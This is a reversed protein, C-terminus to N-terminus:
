FQYKFGVNMNYNQSDHRGRHYNIEGTMMFNEKIKAQLGVKAEAMLGAKDSYLRTQDYKVSSQTNDFWLNIGAYPKIDGNYPYMYAGVRYITHGSFSTSIDTGSHDTVDGGNYTLYSIQAQPEVVLNDKVLIPYGGQLTYSFVNSTYSDKDNGQTQASNRYHGYSFYADIFPSLANDADLYWSGYVGFMNGNVKGNSSSGTDINHSSSSVHTYGTMVGVIFASGNSNFTGDIGILSSFDNYDYKIQGGAAKGKTKGGGNIMWVSNLHDDDTKSLRDMARMGGSGAALAGSSRSGFSPLLSKTVSDANAIYVGLDPRYLSEKYSTLYWDQDTADRQLVYEYAGKVVTNDLKFADVDSSGNDILKVGKESTSAGTGGVDNIHILTSGGAHGSITLQDLKSTEDDGLETNMYIIANDYGTYNGNIVLNNGVLNNSSGINIRNYNDLDNNITFQAIEPVERTLASLNNAVNINGFNIVKGNVSGAGSLATGSNIIIDGADVGGLAVNDNVFLNGQNINTNGTYTQDTGIILANTGNKIMNGSGAIVNTLTQDATNLDFLVNGNNNIAATGLQNIDTASLLSDQAINFIGSFDTNVGSLGINANVNVNGAGSLANIFNSNDGNLNLEGNLKIASNGLTGNGTLTIAADSTIDTNATLGNNEASVILEGGALTLQGAGTLGNVTSSSGGNAITLSGNALDVVGSNTLSGITQTKGNLGTKADKNIMLESTNGLANDTGLLLIGSRVDTKGTYENDTNAVTIVTNATNGAIALDGNGVIQSTIMGSGTNNQAETSEVILANSGSGLLDIKVLGYNLYIGDINQGTTLKYNFYGIASTESSGTNILNEEVDKELLPQGDTNQLTLNSAYGIVKDTQALQLTVEGQDLQTVTNGSISPHIDAPLNLSISGSGSVDVTNVNVVGESNFVGSNEVINNFILEGGNLTLQDLSQKCNEVTVKGGTSLILDANAISSTNNGGLTFATNGLEVKGTFSDGVTNSFSFQNGDTDVNINGAGTLANNFAYDSDSAIVLSDDSGKVNISASSNLQNDQSVTLSSGETIAIDGTFDAAQSNDKSLTLHSGALTMNGTGTLANGLETSSGSNFNNFVLTSGDAISVASSGLNQTQGATLQSNDTIVYQGAFSSNNGTLSMVSGNNVTVTSGAVGSLAQNVAQSVGSLILAASSDALNVTASDAGLNQGRSVTLSGNEGIVQSGTFSQNNGTLTVSAQTNVSGAGSLINSLASNNGNLNLRGAIDIASSGLTGLGNLTVAATKDITTTASLGSNAASVVLEGGKVNLQGAGSLGNAVTSTGGNTLSLAGGALNVSGANALSGVTQTKGNLDVSTGTNLTLQVTQGLANDAGVIVKGATVTTNGTYDNATNSLSIGTTDSAVSLNGSGTLKATLDRNTAGTSTLALTQGNQIDLQTLAYNVGLGGQNTLQYDYQAKAVLNSNQNIDHEVGNALANGSQDQLTLENVDVDGSEQANVLQYVEGSNQDLLNSATDIDTSPINDPNIQIISKDNVTLKDTNIVGDGNFSVTGGNLTLNGITQEGAGVTTKNGEAVNLTAQTLAATNDGSLTFTSHSLSVNGTFDSGVNNSFSFQNGDTDVNINGAGTLANNFAYDSDSAIVLNDDSGKVHISASSNLQNDQSVTLSSGETIAIDGTFDAAQSNDKSLTLHSGALTMNGTGTLANGLETSSGSNFNNFVLTSGDAISVASSGLNQTQGATLQSNDTIVYQGAFSSNNGTLSMVSGNNVTVTSGAVGSLAQNVAQSVGSLILAASSDALNVTASDAGLNQGRSVTLSGNEGIVQSGTFSQNNGTLTVSAQTNVSGAGSLINSLASNNGNLNLRGAIDIASSGLTGLGNLTVAATKDITTTASLGSNAASVVLEGGKVNLQGAGSLGNAVTSTGGNTLSLAGGALNVSGANALSGVTQTKGNLDVSTGTNLTLQATQGLANDAGVIVKGATVTTNGTYDNATNSLSIGTTDSAVSLNGNGTLKATLDRNTAGTSTLALTQGNQIDLQTLVYNVGLGGQNTLQYDYRAKAVLQENQRLDHTADNTLANGSQDQLTLDNVDVTSSEQANVLQYVEGSNQDLLNSATDIDTSPINDPNIQIISKDNVTLKDTNIVGDGNFSVTGGNLTLNSITQEGAGVTTKNGEVVNLTAQTLAATNDGSLTFTSHSLSVNGTFDSGVNHSFSFQNGDTDVNINGAGTLANNFAYNSDSAIVLNDDSGKVNISASSNLQNDQSVTLSSGETIAIDGTFDAAQSNDKSLTLHSGALTMNGTGTLANGLETSSGSNFNNFVLTSGDAISVASSGLNQTQGATLQSNDTIVYQGAFSSNNGTLSMVSGNNVTVTSGAVGSLAQNVAQSVGSLILAASSDALNVTASDAGLNQGRSVTLSGNKGIVQSGTFSQNNGTLTVAAQTNVSGAGSLINSLASNNGNLNLRGAIDIASSGLTGAGNLTVAAMKDITTTASLGSNAASVVLEGGKVNLQGAGSLGNAVTSTGGNTLSLAGGALNVSGANTLSGVTQTKGNLNATANQNIVLASTNGLASNDGLILTGSRVFTKGTYSNEGNNISITTNATQGEIALDGDGEVKSTLNGSATNNQQETSELILANDGSGELAIRVLGYDLYLGDSDHGTTLDYNFYGKASEVNTNKNILNQEKDNPLPDNNSDDLSLDSADGIVTNAKVLSLIINGEDLQLVTYVDLNPTINNPLDVNVSGVSSVDLTDTTITGESTFKGNDETIQNFFLGGGNITLGDLQHEGKGVTVNAGNSVILKSNTLTTANNDILVFNANTFDVNGAFASGVNTGFNFTSGSADININGNGTLAQNFNYDGTVNINLLDNQSSVNISSDSSLQTTQDMNLTSGGLINYDGSFNINNGKFTTSSSNAINVKGSSGTLDNVFDTKFGDLVLTSSSDALDVTATSAGLNNANSVTLQGNSGIAQTGTFGSNNGSLIINTNTNVTGAGSLVNSVQSNNGNLNLRGAIDIAGSGLTGSSNLTVAATKDITTTASLGSNASTVVLEGSQVQLKGAGILGNTSISSGGNTLVLTGGALNMSGANALSGITQTKGNLDVSTGTNLTLQATQGLANDAGVIVKGATVTTNGTYDNATNSLSIGTTDSAVSLNGKGTLKATLDRNTAGTSTLALTQGNQIDLQTLAYNVGLGGQNTLQYDYGAKAVLQENQRLDHTADNTLANGSQDQLTLDNVDVTSSEQANVLQYVEGSNQDLLNSATDIDTSPINDPNIQIISKDNVTLKDTNIVGDGNFSVTGGNLTLNGITQEGAGVTTKNGEAVNLTAQTLAATNDGSLTFTSHSLSVNGTFDSGVNNSFSFQNGDTDVNINGAGTLANNFAYNSDSAIVLNDDAGKVNISASSNLQNDQSVTLSSGETIAIDGTFDAAQSNDKSLTLHSGALTMNGTGTLANGLETSSGSNFNNFVLTSGDAISVASSGLNQTQGATLQSNDTIVYQGAFSSNNGTLSMVSGNNVTVTSGAVGSLAQNVAQSVGSLILAASSDALNVTASDAGLNQGRSVTLSGNEGIVQSGTFSQNNGTLTVAAQTNVSGAGSLINSLASNNGNLNLRGAIDIASSGLTGLGNLTVAATKDITTTASLGSNAASVVLEGGKVNLQGAGSLGNAVTSTGGNTLSLAGGALNVSGANALSGVTQTKGNLDVSTGTNLTLQATQGLANDAGVIVKGATVTTNGTYDNATNSLSIGTADSAVSLNGKGTLKATLDRNTAGTSTLALTQGNQIDLQTLQSSVSLGKDSILAFDYDAVAVVNNNQTINHQTNNNLENGQADQLALKDLDTSSLTNDSSVLQQKQITNQDLLNDIYVNDADIKVISNDTVNLENVNVVGSDAAYSLTGGNLTLNGLNQQGLGITATSESSLQLTANTLASTNGDSVALQTNTLNVTGLFNNGTNSLFNFSNGSTDINVQGNGTLANDLTTQSLNLTGSLAVSGSGFQSTASTNLTGGQDILWEGSFNNNANALTVNSGDKLEVRGTGSLVIGVDDNYQDSFLLSSTDNINILGSSLNDKNLLSLTSQDLNINGFNKFFTTEDVELYSNDFNLVNNGTGADLTGIHNSSNVDFNSLNFTDDGSGTIVNKVSTDNAISVTNNGDGLNITGTTQSGSALILTDNGSGTTLSGNLSKNNTIINDVNGNNFLVNGDIVGDNVFQRAQDGNIEIATSGIANINIDNTVHIVDDTNGGSIKIATGTGTTAEGSSDTVNLTLYSDQIASLDNNLLLGTGSGTVTIINNTNNDSNAFIINNLGSETFATSDIVNIHTDKLTVKADSTKIVNGTAGEAFNITTGTIFHANPSGSASVDIGNGSGILNVTGNNINLNVNAKSSDSNTVIGDGSNVNLIGDTLDVDMENGSTSSFQMGAVSSTISGNNNVRVEGNGNHEIKIGTAANIDTASRVYIGSNNGANKTVVIGTGTVNFNSGGALNFVVDESGSASNDIGGAVGGNNTLGDGTLQAGDVGAIQLTVGSGFTETQKDYSGIKLGVNSGTADGFVNQSSWLLFKAGDNFIYSYGKSSNTDGSTFKNGIGLKMSVDAGSNFTVVNQSIPSNSWFIYSYNTTSKEAIVSLKGNFTIKSANALQKDARTTIDITNDINGFILQSYANQNNATSSSSKALIAVTGNPMTTINDFSVNINSTTDSVYAIPNNTSNNSSITNFNTFTLNVSEDAQGGSFTLRRSGVNLTYGNGDIVM